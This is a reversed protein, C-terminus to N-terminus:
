NSLNSEVLIHEYAAEVSFYQKLLVRANTGCDLRKAKDEILKIASNVLANDDGNAHIFGANADNVLDIVDNGVNSSGLIPISAVMYGLLKGPFNHDTYNKSLSFLGVDVQTLIMKYEIQSVSPLITVNDLNWIAALENILVFQDGQGLILFHVNKYDILNKALRMINPMDNSLTLNGGYFFVIKESINYRKRIDSKVKALPFTETSSWNMLIKVNTFSPHTQNFVKVNAHSMVGICDAMRYNIGEYYRLFFAVPSRESILGVDIIGQPFMDRLILYVFTGQRKLKRTLPGFFITPSYNICLDFRCNVVKDAIANWAKYSLLWENILRRINGVGRTYGSKFRWYEIGDVFDIILTPTQHPNGPTIVVSKHGNKEFEHALQHIMQAHARTGQPLSEDTLLALRM